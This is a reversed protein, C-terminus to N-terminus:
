APVGELPLWARVSHGGAREAGIQVEGRYLGVRERLGLLRRESVRLGDDLVEVELRDNRYRVKVSATGAGGQHLASTLADQVIRYATVDIGAPIGDPREGTVDLEVALGASRARGALDPLSTLTPQPGIMPEPAEDDKLADLLTRLEGLADRGTVEIAEFAQAALEPKVSALRRAGAAQITMAGLAHAVIDHLEGAIRTREATAAERARIARTAEIREAKEGLAADLSLRSRLLRGAVVPAVVFFALGIATVLIANDEIDRDELAVTIVVIGAAAIVVGAILRSGSSRHAMSYTVGILALYVANLANWVEYELLATTAIAGAAVVLAVLPEYRRVLLAGASLGAPLLAAARESASADATSAELMTVAVVLVALLLDVQGATLARARTRFSSLASSVM